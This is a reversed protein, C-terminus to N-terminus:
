GEYRDETPLGHKRQRETHDLKWQAWKGTVAGWTTVCYPTFYTLIVKWMPPSAGTFLQDGHNILTLISGVVLATVLAKKPTGDGFIMHNITPATQNNTNPKTILTGGLM